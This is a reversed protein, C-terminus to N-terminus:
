NLCRGQPDLAAVIVLYVDLVNVLGDGNVDGCSVPNLGLAASVILQYDVNNVVRDGNIDCPCKDIVKGSNYVIEGNVMTLEAALNNIEAPTMAYLDHSWVVMDAYKGPELSGTTKESFSAYASGMTHIRLAEQITLKQEANWVTGSEGRRMVAGFFAWKPEQYISAPVDCGFALPIGTDLMSKLPLFNAMQWAGTSLAYGDSHWVIWQPQASLIIKSDKMRRLVSSAPFLGHEIRHRPDSRPNQRMAEEYATVTMDIGQDGSVHVSVQLGTDHLVKVMRNLVDQPFYPYALNSALMTKDYMLITGAAFGGDMALKWGGFTFRPASIPRYNRAMQTAQAETNLYLLAYLRVKLRGADAFDKYAQIDETSGIIVDQISTYGAQLCLQQGKEIATVKDADSVDGYGPAFCGVLNEAPYHSLM